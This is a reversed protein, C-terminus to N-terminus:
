RAVRVEDYGSGAAHRCPYEDVWNIQDLCPHLQQSVGLLVGGSNNNGFVQYSKQKNPASRVLASQM